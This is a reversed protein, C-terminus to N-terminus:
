EKSVGFVLSKPLRGNDGIRSQKSQISNLEVNTYLNPGPSHSSDRKEFNFRNGLGMM